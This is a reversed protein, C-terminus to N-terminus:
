SSSALVNQWAINKHGFTCSIDTAEDDWWVQSWISLSAGLFTDGEFCIGPVTVCWECNPPRWRTTRVHWTWITIASLEVVFAVARNSEADEVKNMVSLKACCRCKVHADSWSLRHCRLEAVRSEEHLITIVWYLSHNHFSDPLPPPLAAWLWWWDAMRDPGMWNCHFCKDFIEPQGLSQCGLFYQDAGLLQRRWGYLAECGATQGKPIVM